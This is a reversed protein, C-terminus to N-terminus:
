AMYNKDRLVACACKLPVGYNMLASVEDDPEFYSNDFYVPVYEGKCIMKIGGDKEMGSFDLLLDYESFLFQQRVVVKLGYEYYSKDLFSDVIESEATLLTFGRVSGALSFYEKCEIFADDCVAVSIQEDLGKIFKNVSSLLARKLYPKEDFLYERLFDNQESNLSELIKGKNMQLLRQAENSILDSYTMSYIDFPESGILAFDRTIDDKKGLLLRLFYNRTDNTEDKLKIILLLVGRLQTNHGCKKILM